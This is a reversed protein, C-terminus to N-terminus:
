ATIILLCEYLLFVHLDALEESEAIARLHERKGTDKAMNEWKLGVIYVCTLVFAASLFGLCIIYGRHFSSGSTSVFSFSSVFSSLGGISGITALTVARKVHGVTNATVWGLTLPHSTFGGLCILARWHM